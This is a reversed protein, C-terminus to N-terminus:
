LRKLCKSKMLKKLKVWFGILYSDLDSRIGRTSAMCHNLIREMEAINLKKIERVDEPLKPRGPGGNGPTWDKGGSKKGKAM